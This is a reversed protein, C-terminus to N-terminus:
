FSVNSGLMKFFLIIFMELVSIEGGDKQKLM